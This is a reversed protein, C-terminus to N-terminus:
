DFQKYPYVSYLENPSQGRGGRRVGARSAKLRTVLLLGSKQKLIFAFPQNGLKSGPKCDNMKKALADNVQTNISPGTELVYDMRVTVHDITGSCLPNVSRVGSRLRM